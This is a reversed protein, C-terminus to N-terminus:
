FSVNHNVNVVQKTPTSEVITTPQIPEEMEFTIVDSGRRVMGQKVNM